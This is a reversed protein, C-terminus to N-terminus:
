RLLSQLQGAFIFLYTTQKFFSQLHISNTQNLGTNEVKNLWKRGNNM